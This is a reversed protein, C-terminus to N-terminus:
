YVGMAFFQVIRLIQYMERFVGDANRKNKALHIESNRPNIPAITNIHSVVVSYDFGPCLYLNLTAGRPNRAGTFIM